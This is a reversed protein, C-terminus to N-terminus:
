KNNDTVPAEATLAALVPVPSTVSAPALQCIAPVSVVPKSSLQLLVNGTALETADPIPQQLTPGALTDLSPALAPLSELAIGTSPVADQVPQHVEQEILVEASQDVGTTTEPVPAPSQSYLLMVTSRQYERVSKNFSRNQFQVVTVQEDNYCHWINGKKTIATYHGDYKRAKYDVTGILNYSINVSSQQQLNSITSFCYDELPFDVATNVINNVHNDGEPMKRCLVILLLAPYVTIEQHTKVVTRSECHVCHYDEIESEGIVNSTLLYDLTCSSLQPIIPSSPFHIVLETFPEHKTTVNRCFQCMTTHKLIGTSFQEWFSKMAKHLTEEYPQCSETVSSGVPWPQLEHLLCNRLEMLYEHADESPHVFLFYILLSFVHIYSFKSTSVFICYTRQNGNFQPCKTMFVDMFNQSDVVDDGEASIM